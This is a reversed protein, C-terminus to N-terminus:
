NNVFRLIIIIEDFTPRENGFCSSLLNTITIHCPKPIPLRKGQVGIIVPLSM